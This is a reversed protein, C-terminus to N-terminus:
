KFDRGSKAVLSPNTTVGDLLGMAALERIEGLEATDAFFKMIGGINAQWLVVARGTCRHRALAVRRNAGTWSCGDLSRRHAAARHARPNSNRNPATADQLRLPRNREREGQFAGRWRRPTALAILAPM